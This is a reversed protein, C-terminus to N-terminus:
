SDSLSPDALVMSFGRLCRPLSGAESFGWLTQGVPSGANRCIWAQGYALKLLVKMDDFPVRLCLPWREGSTTRMAVSILLM